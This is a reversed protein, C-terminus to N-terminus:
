KGRCVIYNYRVGHPSNRGTEELQLPACVVLTVDKPLDRRSIEMPVDSPQHVRGTTLSAPM